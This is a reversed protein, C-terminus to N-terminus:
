NKFILENETLSFFINQLQHVNKILKKKKGLNFVFGIKRLHIFVGKFVFTYKDLKKFGFKVLLEETLVVPECKEIEVFGNSENSYFVIAKRSRENTKLDVCLAGYVGKCTRIVVGEELFFNGIRFENTEM